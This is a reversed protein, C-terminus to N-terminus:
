VCVCQVTLFASAGDCVLDLNVQSLWYLKFIKVVLVFYHLLYCFMVTNIAIFVQMHRIPHKTLTHFRNSQGSCCAKKNKRRLVSQDRLDM